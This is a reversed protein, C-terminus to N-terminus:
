TYQWILFFVIVGIVPAALLLSRRVRVRPPMAALAAIRPVDAVNM